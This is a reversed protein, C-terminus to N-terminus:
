DDSIWEQREEEWNSAVEVLDVDSLKAGDRTKNGIYYQCFEKVDSPKVPRGLEQLMEIKQMYLGYDNDIWLPFNWTAYEKTTMTM